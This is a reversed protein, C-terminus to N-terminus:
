KQDAVAKQLRVFVVEHRGVESAFEGEFTGLDKHRWLDRVVQKGQLGAVSWQLTMTSPMDGANCLGVAKSGDVLEKVMIYSDETVPSVAACQGLEDQNVEIAEPNCLIGLTFDDLKSMDGSYMLPVASLCWLSMFSYSENPTLPFPKPQSNRSSMGTWGIQIYDPDNWHGPEHWARHSANTAAVQFIRDLEFGLDGATRWSHADVDAGWEWVNNRGYQCLNYVIDRNQKKLLKGMLAYPKISDERTPNPAVKGYSCWDHKVLDFGWNAFQAADQEEFKYSGAYKGCTLEGPSTYIGAKLGKGHIYDTLAKMDPFNANPLINGSADRLPGSLAPDETAPKRMWCDDISVFSYGADAMGSEVIADAAQRIMEDTIFTYHAYWHNWGMYPTLSITDGSVIRFPRTSKGNQNAATFVVKYEGKEPATGSIVGSQEDLKLSGPLGEASFKMPRAGTAPIRYVFPHGPGCGYVTPCNIRPEPGPRPTLVVGKERPFEMAAVKGSTVFEAEAWNAHDHSTSDEPSEVKLLLRKIGTLPVEVRKAADGPKMIGTKFLVKGDGVIKFALSPKGGANDDVGVWARFLEAKGDLDVWLSSNAHTGVGRPFQRGAITMTSERISRDIQPTGYGQQMKSLDLSSLPVTEAHGFVMVGLCSIVAFSRAFGIM